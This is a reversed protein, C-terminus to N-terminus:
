HASEKSGKEILRKSMLVLGIIQTWESVINGIVQGWHTEPDTRMYLAAWLGGTIILFISLSHQHVFERARNRFHGRPARSEKSGVEYFYKTGLVAVLTGTWDATANGYFGGLHTTDDAGAYLAIWMALIGATIFSLSHRHLAAGVGRTRKRAM